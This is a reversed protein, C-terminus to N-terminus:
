KEAAKRQNEFHEVIDKAAKEGVFTKLEEVSATAIKVISGFNRLLRMKRKEGVGPIATLDSTFDRVERRKRHYEIATKHTEDRIQQIFRFTPSSADFPIPSNERGKVLLHSIQNHHKPPKVLGVLTIAELDLERMASAAASLQGKGGDIFILDPLQKQEELARRMKRFVAERMSAFDDQGDVTKIKFRRTEARNQVGNDFVVIGAVNEAGSINSIDFSEIRAPLRPIELIDQLDELVKEMDPKLVRFRQEFSIKANKEVLEIMELKIGRQPTFFKVKRGRRETLVKELIERDDFDSPVHIELPVYDTSYYQSLVEGFFTEPTFDDLDEWFFERRGVIRGERMTFLQLALRPKEVYYGFIDVDRDATTVMKQQEGLQLVTLRLDRYKAALEYRETEAFHWMRQELQEALEKNKGDLLLKVDTTAQVYEAPKCLDKVCPALCRKLHYELCPRPLKGNIDIDCTRLQFTRNILELSKYALKTPLFPGYYSSGDKLLKRTMVVRPFAENTLKLHPYQKDDKLLINYRPKHKKILNSELVLAEIESDVVIFEFDAISKVLLKTKHDHNKSSQFYSRVRNRLNKAKGIYIIKGDANKHIYVGASVPLNKLKEQLDSM